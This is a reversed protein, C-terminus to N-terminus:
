ERFAMATELTGQLDGALAEQLQSYKEVGVILSRVAM